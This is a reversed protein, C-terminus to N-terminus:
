RVIHIVKFRGDLYEEPLYAIASPNTAVESLLAEKKDMKRPPKGKGTFILTTWYSNLQRLNKGTVKRYFQEKYSSNSLEVPQVRSGDRLRRTKALFIRKIERETLEAILSTKAVVVVMEARVQLSFPLTIFSVFMVMLILFRM